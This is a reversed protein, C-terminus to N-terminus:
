VRSGEFPAPGFPTQAKGSIKDGDVSGKFTISLRGIPTKQKVKFRFNSGDVSGNLLEVVEGGSDSTGTLVDGDTKFVLRGDQKGKLTKVTIDYIGDIAMHKDGKEQIIINRHKGYVM